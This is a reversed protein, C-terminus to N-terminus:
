HFFIFLFSFNSFYCILVFNGSLNNIQNKLKLATNTWSTNLIITKLALMDPSAEAIPAIYAYLIHRDGANNYQDNAHIAENRYPIANPINSSIRNEEVQNLIMKTDFVNSVTETSIRSAVPKLYESFPAIGSYM